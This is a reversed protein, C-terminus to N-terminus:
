NCGKATCRPENLRQAYLGRASELYMLATEQPVTSKWSAAPTNMIAYQALRAEDTKIWSPIWTTSLWDRYRKLYGAVQGTASWYTACVGQYNTDRLKQIANYEAIVWPEPSCESDGVGCGSPGLKANMAEMRADAPAAAQKLAAGYGAVLEKKENEFQMSAANIEPGVTQTDAGLQQQAQAWKMAEQPNSMMWQQMRQAKEMPDINNFDEEIKQNVAKQRDIDAQTTETAAAVKDSFPDDKLYCATPLAPAKAFPGTAPTQASATASGLLLGFAATSLLAGIRILSM